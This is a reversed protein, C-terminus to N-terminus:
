NMALAGLKVLDTATSVSDERYGSADGGVRTNTLGKRQLFENTYKLYADISGFYSIALTDAINNASPLMLAELMDHQTLKQGSRVPMVSGNIAIYRNYIAVDEDTITYTPGSAGLALPQKELVVLATVTKVVSAISVQKQEGHSAIVTGDALGFAAQGYSPWPLNSTQTTIRLKDNAVSPQLEAIPMALAIAGYLAAFIILALSFLRFKRHSRRQKRPRTLPRPQM